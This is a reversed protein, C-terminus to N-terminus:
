KFMEKGSNLDAIFSEFQTKWRPDTTVRRGNEAASIAEKKKGLFYYGMVMGLNSYDANPNKDHSIKFINFAEQHLQMMNLSIGYMVLQLATGMPIAKKMLSDAEAVRNFKKLLEAYTSLTLFNAEGFFTNVSRDAWILAEDLNINNVLCYNAATHMNQWYRYFMGSNFERRFAEIQRQHLDVSIRFPIKVKEWNLSLIVSSDTPGNFEYKLREVNASGKEVTVEVRLADDKADYYFSGWATNFRSFVLTARDPGMAVFFGYKGAPIAKGEVAVEASFEITTNENAGARWPSSKSTGYHLDAFGNHVVGGWIKGERGDVLPRSYEVKVLTIGVYESVSAKKNRDSPLTIQGYTLPDFATILIIFFLIRM